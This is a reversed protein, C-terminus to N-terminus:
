WLRSKAIASNATEVQRDVDELFEDAKKLLSNLEENERDARDCNTNAQPKDLAFRRLQCTSNAVNTQTSDNSLPRIDTSTGSGYAAIIDAALQEGISIIEPNLQFNSGDFQTFTSINSGTNDELTSAPTNPTVIPVSPANPIGTGTIDSGQGPIQASAQEIFLGGLSLSTGVILGIFTNSLM